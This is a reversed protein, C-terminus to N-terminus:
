PTTTGPDTATPDTGPDTAPPDVVPPDVVPPDVVPPDVVPPDVVPPDVVPPDVVPPDVVPPDVVPPDVVPPDVVPPDVVPPDVVPPDTVPESSPPSSPPSAPTTTGPASTGPTSTTPASTSPRVTGPATTGPASTGPKSTSGSSPDTRSGPQSRRSPATTARDNDTATEDNPNVAASSPGTSAPSKSTGAAPATTAAPVVTIAGTASLSGLEARVSTRGKALGRVTGDDAVAAVSSDGIRYTAGWLAITPAASGDNLVGTLRLRATQAVGVTLSAPSFSMASLQHDQRYRAGTQTRQEQAWGQLTTMSVQDSQVPIDYTSIITAGSRAPLEYAVVPDREVIRPQPDFSIKGADDVISKPIVEEITTALAQSTQFTLEGHLTPKDGGTLSWARTVTVGSAPYTEPAFTLSFHAVDSSGSMAVGIGTAAGAILLVAVGAVLPKSRSWLRRDRSRPELQDAAVFEGLDAVADTSGDDPPLYGADWSTPAYAPEHRVVELYDDSPGHPDAPADMAASLPSFATPSPVSRTPAASAKASPERLRPSAEAGLLVQAGELEALAGWADRPRAAPDPSLWRLLLRWVADPMDATRAPLEDNQKRMVVYPADGAYPTRGSILEYLVVGCAYVDVSPTPVAGAALEPPSYHTTGVYDQAQTLRPGDVLRAIGFDTIKATVAGDGSGELLVNSPKVDRHVVGHGHVVGLGQLIQGVLDLAATVSLPGNGALHDRLSGGGILEMVIAVTDGDVVLDEVRVLHPSAMALMLNREQVFRTLVVPDEALDARLVKIARDPGGDHRVARYVTGMGGSGLRDELM